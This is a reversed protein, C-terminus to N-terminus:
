RDRGDFLTQPTAFKPGFAVKDTSYTTVPIFCDNALIHPLLATVFAIRLQMALVGTPTTRLYAHLVYVFGDVGGFQRAM